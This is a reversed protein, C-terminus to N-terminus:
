SYSAQHKLEASPPHYVTNCYCSGRTAVACSAMPQLHECSAAETDITNATVGTLM